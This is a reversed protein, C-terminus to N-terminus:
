AQATSSTVALSPDEGRASAPAAQRAATATGELGVGGFAV